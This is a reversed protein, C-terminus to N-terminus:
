VLKESNRYSIYFFHVIYKINKYSIFIKAFPFLKILYYYSYLICIDLICDYLIFITHSITTYKSKKYRM